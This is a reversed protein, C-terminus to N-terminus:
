AGDTLAGHKRTSLRAHRRRIGLAVLLVVVISMALTQPYKVSYVVPWLATRALSRLSDRHRIYRALPPSVRYYLHVFARGLPNTMLYRDRFRRLQVVEAAMPSGYAATAIFCSAFGAAGTTQSVNTFTATCTIPHNQIQVMGTACGDGSWGAFNSGDGALANLAVSTGLAFRARCATGCAIRTPASTVTGLGSGALAITLSGSSGIESLTNALADSVYAHTGDPSIAIGALASSGAAGTDILQAPAATNATDIVAVTHDASNAVFVRAGDPSLTVAVPSSFGPILSAVTATGVDIVGVTNAGRNVVYASSGDPSFAIGTPTAGVGVTIPSVAPAGTHADLVAIFDDAVQNPDVVAVYIKTGDPSAAVAVPILGPGFVQSSVFTGTALTVIRAVGGVLNDAVYLLTGDPSIALAQVSSKTGPGASFGSISEAAIPQILAADMAAVGLEGVTVYVRRGDPSAVIGGAVAPATNPLEANPILVQNSLTSLMSVSGQNVVYLKRGDPSFALGQPSLAVVISAGVEPSPSTVDANFATPSMALNAATSLTVPATSVDSPLRVSLVTSSSSLLQTAPVSNGFSVSNNAANPDFDTGVITVITGPGGSAPSIFSIHPGGTKAIRVGNFNGQAGSSQQSWSGSAAQTAASLASLQWSNGSCPTRNLTGTITNSGAAGSLSGDMCDVDGRLSGVGTVSNTDGSLTAEWTGSVTGLAPDVGQWSGAWVGSLDPPPPPSSPGDGGGCAQLLALVLLMAGLAVRQRRASLQTMLTLSTSCRAAGTEITTFDSM